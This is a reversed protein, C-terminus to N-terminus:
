DFYANLEILGSTLATGASVALTGAGAAPAADDFALDFVQSLGSAPAAAPLFVSQKYITAGNLTVSILTRGAAALAADGSVTLKLKRLNLAGPAVSAAAGTTSLYEATLPLPTKQVQYALGGANVPVVTYVPSANNNASKVNVDVVNGITASQGGGMVPFDVAFIEAQGNGTISWYQNAAAPFQFQGSTGAKCVVNFNVPQVNIVLDAIGATNDIFVGQPIFGFNDIKYQTWDQAYPAASFVGSIHVSHTQGSAPVLYNNTTSQITNM